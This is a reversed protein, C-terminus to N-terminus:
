RRRLEPIRPLALSVQTDKQREAKMLMTDIALMFAGDLKDIRANIAANAALQVTLEELGGTNGLEEL